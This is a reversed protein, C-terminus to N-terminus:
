HLLDSCLSLDYRLQYTAAAAAVDKDSLLDLLCM